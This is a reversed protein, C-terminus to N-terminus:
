LRIKQYTQRRRKRSINVQDSEFGIGEISLIDIEKMNPILLTYWGGRQNISEYCLRHGEIGKAIGRYVKVIEWVKEVENPLEVKFKTYTPM